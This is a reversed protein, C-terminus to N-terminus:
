WFDNLLNPEIEKQAPKQKCCFLDFAQFMQKSSTCTEIKKDHYDRQSLRIAMKVKNRFMRFCDINELSPERIVCKESIMPSGAKHKEKTINTAFVPSLM